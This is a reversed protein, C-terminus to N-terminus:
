KAPKLVAVAVAAIAVEPDDERFEYPQHDPNSSDPSLIITHGQRLYRKLTAERDVGMISAAVIDDPRPSTPLNRPQRLIVYDGNDIGAQNMSDGIVQSLYYKYEQQDLRFLSGEGRLRRLYYRTGDINVQDVAAVVQQVDDDSVRAQGAPIAGIVPLFHLVDGSIQDTPTTVPQEPTPIYQEAIGQAIEELRKGIQTVLASYERAQHAKGAALARRNLTELYDRSTEYASRAKEMAGVRYYALARILYTIAENHKDGSLHFCKIAQEAAMDGERQHRLLGHIHARYAYALASGYIDVRNNCMALAQQCRNMAEWTNHVSLSAQIQELVASAPSEIKRRLLPLPNDISPMGM